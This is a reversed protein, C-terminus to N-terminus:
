ATAATAWAVAAGATLWKGYHVAPKQWGGPAPPTGQAALPTGLAAVAFVLGSAIRKM